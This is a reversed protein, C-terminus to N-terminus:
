SEKAKALFKNYAKRDYITSKGKTHSFILKPKKGNNDYLHLEDFVNNKAFKPLLVSIERHMDRIYWAKTGVLEEAIGPWIVITGPMKQKEMMEKRNDGEM